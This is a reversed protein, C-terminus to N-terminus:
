TREIVNIWFPTPDIVVARKVTLRNLFPIWNLIEVDAIRVCYACRNILYVLPTLDSFLMCHPSLLKILVYGSWVTPDIFDLRTLPEGYNFSLLGLLKQNHAVM